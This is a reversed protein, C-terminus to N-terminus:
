KREIMQTLAHAIVFSIVMEDYPFYGSEYDKGGSNFQEYEFQLKDREQETLTDLLSTDGDWDQCIRDGAVSGHRWCIEAAIKLVKITFDDTM